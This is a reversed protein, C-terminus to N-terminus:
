NAPVLEARYAEVNGPGDNTDCTNIYITDNVVLPQMFRYGPGGMDAEVIAAGDSTRLGTLIGRGGPGDADVVWAVETGAFQHLRMRTPHRRFRTVAEESSFDPFEWQPVLTPQDDVLEVTVAVVGAPHTRDPMFTPVLLLPHGDLETVTPETVIMGAWTWRCSDGDAGCYDVLQLRDFMTGLHDYDVLYLHGDKTPYALLKFEGVEVYVPTSGGIYDLEQWCEFFELGDCLGNEPAPPGEGPLPRPIFLNECSELCDVDPTDADFNECASTSCGHEFVLGPEVRMMTNAYNGRMPNLQGNGTALVLNYDDESEVSLTGSPAWLGGGCIRSTSGSVGRTGCDEEPTTCLAATIPEDSGSTWEDIDVEFIWGHWPQIDRVNGFSIYVRGLEGPGETLLLESRGFANPPEFEVTGGGNAPASGVIELEPYDPHLRRGALDVGVLFHGDRAGAAGTGTASPNLVNVVQSTPRSQYGVILVDGLLAPTAAAFARHGVDDPLDVSWLVDGSDPDMGVVLDGVTVIIEDDGERDYHLPSAYICDAFRVSEADASPFLRSLRAVMPVPDVVEADTDVVEADGDVEVTPVDLIVEGTVNLDTPEDIPADPEEVADPESAPDNSCSQLVCVALVLAGIKLQKV